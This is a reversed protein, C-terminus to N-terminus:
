WLTRKKSTTLRRQIQAHNLHGKDRAAMAAAAEGPAMGAFAVAQNSRNSNKRQMMLKVDEFQKCETPLPTEPCIKDLMAFCQKQSLAPSGPPNM